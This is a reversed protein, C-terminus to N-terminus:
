FVKKGCIRCSFQGQELKAGCHPCVYPSGDEHSSLISFVDWQFAKGKISRYFNICGILILIVPFLVATPEARYPRSSNARFWGSKIKEVAIIMFIIGIVILVLSFLIWKVNVSKEKEEESFQNQELREEDLSQWDEHWFRYEKRKLGRYFVLIGLLFFLIGTLGHYRRGFEYGKFWELYGFLCGLVILLVSLLVCGAPPMRFRKDEM